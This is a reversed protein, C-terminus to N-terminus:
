AKAPEPPEEPERVKIEYPHASPRAPDFTVGLREWMAFLENEGADLIALEAAKFESVSPMLPLTLSVDLIAEWARGILWGAGPQGAAPPLFLELNDPTCQREGEAHGLTTMVQDTQGVLERM